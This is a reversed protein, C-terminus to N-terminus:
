SSVAENNSEYYGRSDNYTLDRSQTANAIANVSMDEIARRNFTTEDLVFTINIPAADNAGSELNATIDSTTGEPAGGTGSPGAPTGGSIASEIGAVNALTGAWSIAAAIGGSVVGGALSAQNRAREAASIGAVLAEAQSIRGAIRKSKEGQDALSTVLSAAIGLASAAYSAQISKRKSASLKEIDELKSGTEQALRILLEDIEAKRDVDLVGLEQLLNARNTYEAVIAESETELSAVVSDFNSELPALTTQREQDQAGERDSRLQDLAADYAELAAIQAQLAEDGRQPFAQQFEDIVDLRKAYEREVQDTGTALSDILSQFATDNPEAAATTLTPLAIDIGVNAALRARIDDSEQATERASQRASEVQAELQTWFTPQDRQAALNGQLRQLEGATELLVRASEESGDFFNTVRQAQLNLRQLGVATSDFLGDIFEFSNGIAGVVSVFSDAANLSADRFGAMSDQAGFIQNIVGTIAPAMDATFAQSAQSVNLKLLFMADNMAEVGRVDAEDLAVGLGIMENKADQIADASARIISVGGRDFIRAAIRAKDGQTALEEIAGSIQSFQEEVNLQSLDVASLGLEDLAGRADGLGVAAEAIRRTMKEISKDFTGSEIGALAAERRYAQIFEVSAGTQTALKGMQDILPANASIILGPAAVAATAMLSFSVGLKGAVGDLARLSSTASAVGARTRDTATIEYNASSRSRAM